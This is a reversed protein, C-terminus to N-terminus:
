TKSEEEPAVNVVIKGKARGTKLRRYAERVDEFKYESDIVARVKGEVM